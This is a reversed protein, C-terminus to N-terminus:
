CTVDFAQGKAEVIGVGTLPAVIPGGAVVTGDVLRHDPFKLISPALKKVPFWKIASRDKNSPDPRVDSLIRTTPCANESSPPLLQSIFQILVYM